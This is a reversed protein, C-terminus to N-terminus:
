SHAMPNDHTKMNSSMTEPKTPANFFRHTLEELILSPMNLLAASKITTKTAHSTSNVTLCTGPRPKSM